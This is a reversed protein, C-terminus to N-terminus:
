EEKELDTHVFGSTLQQQQAKWYTGLRKAREPLLAPMVTAVCDAARAETHSKLLVGGVRSEKCEALLKAEDKGVRIAQATDHLMVEGEQGGDGSPVCALRGHESTKLEEITPVNGDFTAKYSSVLVSKLSNATAIEDNGASTVFGCKEIRDM